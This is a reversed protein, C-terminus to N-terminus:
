ILTNEDVEDYNNENKIKIQKNNKFKSNKQNNQQINNPTEIIRMYDYDVIFHGGDKPTGGDRNALVKLIYQNDARMEPNQIIGLVLDATHIVGMSESTNKLSINTSDYGERNIQTATVVTFNNRVAMGRLDESIRKIDLYLNNGATKMINLYDVFVIDFKFGYKKEESLIYSELEQVNMSGNPFQKILLKGPKINSGMLFNLDSSNQVDQYNEIKFKNKSNIYYEKFRKEFVKGDNFCQLSNQITTPNDFYNYVPIGLLNSGIRKIISVDSLEFSVYLANKGLAVANACLNNLWLSKGVKAQGVFLWLTKKSYGGDSIDDLFSYGTLMKEKKTDIKHYEFDNFLIDNSQEGGDLFAKIEKLFSFKSFNNLVLDNIKEDDEISYIEVFKQSIENSFNKLTAIQIWNFLFDTEFYTSYFFEEDLVNKLFDFDIKLQSIEKKSRVLEDYFIKISNFDLVQKKIFRKLCYTKFISFTDRVEDYLFWEKLIYNLLKINRKDKKIKFIIIKLIEWETDRTISIM